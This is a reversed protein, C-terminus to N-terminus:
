SKRVCSLIDGTMDSPISLGMISLITPAIDGLKGNKLEYANDTVIFPVLSKSHSTIVNDKDDLMYDCNGHDATIIMIMDIEKCKNYIKGICEDLVEVSTVTADFVGTHGVMDGNAFNLVIFDYKDMNKILEDTIKYASMEPMLDYTAVKPSPILIKDENPYDMEKGGDFFFTVHAYKETEAIRLQSLNNNSIVEGMINNLNPNDFAYPAKVSEVVPMMSLVKLNKFKKVKMKNFDPNTLATLIERIRDKRFNFTIFGDGDEVKSDNTFIAPPLFEDTIGKDYNYDLYKKICDKHYCDGQGEVIADYDLKLRDYNNDRDMGYYRGGITAIEGIGLEKIKDELMNIYNYSSKPDVDRGDTCIHIYVKDVGNIKCMDLLAYLHNIHSHVGGDSLLGFLHLKSNNRKVYNMVDLIKENQFFTKNEIEKDIMTLPELVVRGAGINMHGVESNGMQGDPLGVSTGSAELKSNPYNEFLYDLNPTIAKRFANGHNNDRIGVGDLITLLVKKM